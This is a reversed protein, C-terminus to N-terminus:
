FHFLAKGRFLGAAFATPAGTGACGFLAIEAEANIAAALRVSLVTLCGQM